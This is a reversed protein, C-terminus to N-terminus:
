SSPGPKGPPQGTPQGAPQGTPQDVIDTLETAAARKDPPTRLIGTWGTILKVVADYGPTKLATHYDFQVRSEAAAADDAAGDAAAEAAGEPVELARQVTLEVLTSGPPLPKTNSWQPFPSAAIAAFLKDTAEATLQATASRAFAGRQNRYVVRGDGFVEIEDRGWPSTPAQPNGMRLAVRSTPPTTMAGLM